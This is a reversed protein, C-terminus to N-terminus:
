LFYKECLHRNKYEYWCKDNNWWQDSNCIKGDFRCKCECLIDKTVVKSEDIGTIMNFISLNSDGIKNPVCVKNCLDNITSCSGVCNDLKVAVSYYHFEVSYENPDLNILTPKTMCKPNSLLICKTHDSANVLGTLLGIFVKKILGFM